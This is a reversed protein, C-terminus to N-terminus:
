RKRAIDLVHAFPSVSLIVPLLAVPLRTWDGDELTRAVIAVTYFNVTALLLITFVIEVGYKRRARSRELSILSAVAFVTVLLPWLIAWTEGSVKEITVIGVVSAALGYLALLAYKVGLRGTQDPPEPTTKDAHSM